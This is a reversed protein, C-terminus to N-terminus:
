CVSGSRKNDVFALAHNKKKKGIGVPPPPLALVSLVQTASVALSPSVCAEGLPFMAFIVLSEPVDDRQL